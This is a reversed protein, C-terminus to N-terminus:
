ISVIFAELVERRDLGFIKIKEDLLSTKYLKDIIEEESYRSTYPVIKQIVYENVGLTHAIDKYDKGNLMDKVQYLMRYQKAISDIIISEDINSSVLIRYSELAGNIDKNLINENFVFIEKESSKSVVDNVDKVSIENDSKYLLLKEIESMCLDINNDCLFMIRSVQDYTIKIKNEKFLDELYSHLARYDM